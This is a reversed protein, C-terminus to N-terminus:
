DNLLIIFPCFSPKLSKKCLNLEATFLIIDAGSTLFINMSEKAKSLAVGSHLLIILSKFTSSSSLLTLFPNWRLSHPDFVSVYQNTVGM